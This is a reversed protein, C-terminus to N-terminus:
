DTTAIISLGKVEEKRAQKAIFLNTLIGELYPYDTEVAKMSYNYHVVIDVCEPLDFIYNWRLV